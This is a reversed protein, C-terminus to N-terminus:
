GAQPLAGPRVPETTGTSDGVVWRELSACAPLFIRISNLSRILPSISGTGDYKGIPIPTFNPFSLTTTPKAGFGYVQKIKSAPVKPRNELYKALAYFTKTVSVDYLKIAFPPKHSVLHTQRRRQRATSSDSVGCGEHLSFSFDSAAVHRKRLVRKAQWDNNVVLTVTSASTPSLESDGFAWVRSRPHTLFFYLFYRPALAQRDKPKWM